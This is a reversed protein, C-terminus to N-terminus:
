DTQDGTNGDAHPSVKAEIVIAAITFHVKSRITAEM